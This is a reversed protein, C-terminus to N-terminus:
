RSSQPVQGPWTPCMSAVLRSNAGGPIFTDSSESAENNQDVSGVIQVRHGARTRLLQIPLNSVM